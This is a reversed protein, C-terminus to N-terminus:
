PSPSGDPKPVGFYCVGRFCYNARPARGRIAPFPLEQWPLLEPTKVLYVEGASFRAALNYFDSLFPRSLPLEEYEEEALMRRRLVGLEAISAPAPLPSDFLDSPITFFDEGRNSLWEQGSRFELVSEGRPSLEELTLEGEELLYTELLLLSAYDELFGQEQTGSGRMSSHFVGESSTNAELLREHLRIARSRYEEVGTARYAELLACGLLANWSTLIKDDREPQARRSRRDLLKSLIQRNERKEWPDSMAVLHLKGEFNGSESSEFLRAFADHEEDTLVSKLEEVDWLYTAGEQHNTDADLGSAYLGDIELRSDLFRVTRDIANRYLDKELLRYGWSLSWLLMAQDYLMKEFHPIRWERDVCYRF